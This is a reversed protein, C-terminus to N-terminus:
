LGGRGPWHLGAEEAGASPREGSDPGGQTEQVPVSLPLLIFDVVVDLSM